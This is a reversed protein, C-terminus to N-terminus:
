SHTKGWEFLGQKMHGPQEPVWKSVPRSKICLPTVLHAAVLQLPMVLHTAFEHHSSAGTGLAPAPHCGSCLLPPPACLPPEWLRQGQWCHPGPCVGPMEQAPRGQVDALKQQVRSPRCLVIMGTGRERRGQEWNQGRWPGVPLQSVEGGDRQKWGAQACVTASNLCQVILPFSVTHSLTSPTLVIARSFRLTDYCTKQPSGLHM